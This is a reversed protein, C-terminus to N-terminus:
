RRQSIHLGCSLNQANSPTSAWPVLGHASPGRCSAPWSRFYLGIILIHQEGALTPSGPPEPAIAEEIEQVIQQRLRAVFLWPTPRRPQTAPRHEVDKMMRDLDQDRASRREGIQQGDAHRDGRAAAPGPGGRLRERGECILAQM